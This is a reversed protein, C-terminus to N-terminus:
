TKVRQKVVNLVSYIYLESILVTGNYLHETM